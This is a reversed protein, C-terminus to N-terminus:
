QTGTRSADAPPQESILVDFFARLQPWDVGHYAAYQEALEAYADHLTATGEPVSAALYRELTRTSGGRRLQERLHRGDKMRDFWKLGITVMARYDDISRPNDILTDLSTFWTFEVDEGLDRYTDKWDTVVCTPLGVPTPEWQQDACMTAETTEFPRNLNLDWFELIAHHWLGGSSNKTLRIHFREVVGDGRREYTGRPKAATFGSSQFVEGFRSEVLGYGEAIKVLRM